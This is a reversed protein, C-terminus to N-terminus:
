QGPRDFVVDFNQVLEDPEFHMADVQAAVRDVQFLLIFDKLDLHNCFQQNLSEKKDYGHTNVPM